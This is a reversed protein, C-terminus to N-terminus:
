VLSTFSGLPACGFSEDFSKEHVMTEIQQHTVTIPFDLVGSELKEATKLCNKGFEENGEYAISEKGLWNLFLVRNKKIMQEYTLLSETTLYNLFGKFVIFFAYPQVGNPNIIVHSSAPNRTRPIILNAGFYEKLVTEDFLADYSWRQNHSYGTTITLIESNVLIKFAETWSNLNDSLGPQFVVALSFSDSSLSPYVSELVGSKKIITVYNDKNYKTQNSVEPGILTIEIGELDPYLNLNKLSEYVTSYNFAGEIWDRCGVMLISLKNDNLEPIKGEIASELLAVVITEPAGRNADDKHARKLLKHVHKHAEFSGLQCERSCYLGINTGCGLEKCKGCRNAAPNKCKECKHNKFASM